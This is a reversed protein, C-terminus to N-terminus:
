NEEDVVLHFTAGKGSFTWCCSGGAVRVEPSGSFGGLMRLLEELARPAGSLLLRVDPPADGPFSLKVEVSREKATPIRGEM